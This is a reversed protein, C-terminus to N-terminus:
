SLMDHCFHLHISEPPARVHKKELYMVNNKNLSLVKSKDLLTVNNKNLLLISNIAHAQIGGQSPSSLLSTANWFSDFAHADM